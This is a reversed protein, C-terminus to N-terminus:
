SPWASGRIVSCFNGRRYASDKDALVDAKDHSRPFLPSETDRVLETIQRALKGDPLRVGQVTLTM